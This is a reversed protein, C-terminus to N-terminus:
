RDALGRDGVPGVMGKHFGEVISLGQVMFMTPVMQSSEQGMFQHGKLGMLNDGQGMFQGKLDMLNTEPGMSMVEQHDMQSAGQGMFQEWQLVMQNGEPEMFWPERHDMQSGEQEM